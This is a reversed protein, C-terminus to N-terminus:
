RKWKKGYCFFSRKPSNIQFHWDYFANLNFLMKGFSSFFLFSILILKFHWDYFASLDIHMKVLSCYLNMSKSLILIYFANLDALMKGFSCILYQYSIQEKHLCRKWRQCLCFWDYTVPKTKKPPPSPIRVEYM